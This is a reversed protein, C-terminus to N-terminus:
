IKKFIFQKVSWKNISYSFLTLIFAFMGLFFFQILGLFFYNKYKKFSILSKHFSNNNNLYKNLFTQFWGFIEWFFGLSRKRIIKFGNKKSFNLFYRDDFIQLHRPVDLHYWYGKGFKYQLSNASPINIVLLGNKKLKKNFQKEIIHADPLHEFSNNLMILDFSKDPFKSLHKNSINLTKAKLKKLSVKRETGFVKWGKKKFFNLLKGDGCGIELLTKNKNNYFFNDINDAKQKYFFNFVKNVIFNYKRYTKPYYKDLSTPRPIPFDINCKNCRYIKFSKKTVYDKSNFLYNIDKSKCRFCTM